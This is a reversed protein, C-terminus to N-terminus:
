FVISLIKPPYSSTMLSKLATWITMLISAKRKMLALKEDRFAGSTYKFSGEPLNAALRELSSPMFQFSDLIKLHKGLMFVM